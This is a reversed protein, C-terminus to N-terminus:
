LLRTDTQADVRRSRIDLQLVFALVQSVRLGRCVGCIVNQGFQEIKRAVLFGRDGVFQLKKFQGFEFFRFSDLRRQSSARLHLRLRGLLADCM